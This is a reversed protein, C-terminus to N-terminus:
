WVSCVRRWVQDVRPADGPNVPAYRVQICLQPGTNRCLDRQNFSFHESIDTQPTRGGGGYLYRHQRKELGFPTRVILEVLMRTTNAERAWDYRLTLQLTAPDASPTRCWGDSTAPFTWSAEANLLKMRPVAASKLAKKQGETLSHQKLQQQQAPTVPTLKGTPITPTGALVAEATTLVLALTGAMIRNRQM